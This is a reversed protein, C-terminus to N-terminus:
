KDGKTAAKLLRKLNRRKIRNLTLLKDILDSVIDEGSRPQQDELKINHGGAPPLDEKTEVCVSNTDACQSGAADSCEVEEYFQIGLIKCVGLLEEPPLKMIMYILQETGKPVKKNEDM